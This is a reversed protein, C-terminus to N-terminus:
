QDDRVVTYGRAVLAAVVAEVDDDPVFDDVVDGTMPSSEGPAGVVYRDIGAAALDARTREGYAAMAFLFPDTGYEENDSLLMSDSPVESEEAGFFDVDMLAALRQAADDSGPTIGASQEITTLYSDLGVGLEDLQEILLEISDSRRLDGFTELAYREEYAILRQDADDVTAQTVVYCGDHFPARVVHFIRMPDTEGGAM